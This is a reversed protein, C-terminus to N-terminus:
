EVKMARMANLIAIICVGVDAFVALWMNVIGLIGLLMVVAKVGLAFAINQHVIKMTRRAIRIALPLKIPDDDMLVVDAAEIAADSGMGGMAIGLDARRLVPADNIGDGVFGVTHGEGLLSEIADVKNEPLLEAKVDTLGITDAVSQAVEKRDGTLMVLRNVGTAKLEKMAEASTPKVVDSIVIHGLYRGDSATHVITGQVECPDPKLGITAMLKDNGAHIVHGDVTAQIGHGALEHVDTVRSRDIPKGYSAQISRSIPHDSFCEAHASMELLHSEQSSEAPHLASVTFIGKTLTGTKDFAVTDLSALVEMYNAGKILIGKRSAGGIGSFFSLPVSIVLACPCSIVLFSLAQEIWRTWEGGLFLPPIVALLVAACCVAPTYYRAFKSIFQEAQAKHDGSSEVLDLIKAVTSESFVSTVKIKLMGEQNVCGSIVTDGVFVDRPLSEGTLAVTNLSSTGEIIVGDLPLKEGPKVQIIEGVHVDNPDVVMPEGNRIVTAVDPRIDM